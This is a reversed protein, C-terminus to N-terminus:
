TLIDKRKFIFLAIFYFVIVHTFLISVSKLIEISDIPNKFMLMWDLLYSTFLFPKISQIFEVPIASLILFVIIVAMTSIIPGIANEVLASFLFALSAVVSMSLTAYAYAFLFRWLIDDKAFVIIGQNNAVLLEGTGLIITGLVLSTFALWIILLSTYIIGALFKSTVIQNRSIPRTILMRYTGASAEGALLDGAVLTILFPIHVVLSMMIFYSVFYANLLNGVLFFSSQLNETMSNLTHSGSFYMAIHIVPVLTGIAMFGIYTRWKKFIKYLEIQILTLM